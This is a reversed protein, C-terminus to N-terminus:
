FEGCVSQQNGHKNENNVNSRLEKTIKKRGNYVRAIKLGESIFQHLVSDDGLSKVIRCASEQTSLILFQQVVWRLVFCM